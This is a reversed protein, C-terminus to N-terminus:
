FINQQDLRPKGEVDEVDEDGASKNRWEEVPRLGLRPSGMSPELDVTTLQRPHEESRQGKRDKM